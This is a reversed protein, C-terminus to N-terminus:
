EFACGCSVVREYERVVRLCFFLSFPFTFMIVLWSFVGLVYTVYKDLSRQM